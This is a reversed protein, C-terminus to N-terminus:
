LSSELRHGLQEFTFDINDGAERLGGEFIFFPWAVVDVPVHKNVIVVFNTMEDALDDRPVIVVCCADVFRAAKIEGIRDAIGPLKGSRRTFGPESDVRHRVNAQCRILQEHHGNATVVLVVGGDISQIVPVPTDFGSSPHHEHILTIHLLTM